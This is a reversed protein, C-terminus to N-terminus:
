AKRQHFFGLLNEMVTKICFGVWRMWREGFRMQAVIKLLFKWNVHDYTKEIDLKCMIGSAEGRLRSDVCESAILAADMIQKGKIFAM